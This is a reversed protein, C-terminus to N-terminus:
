RPSTQQILDGLNKVQKELKSLRSIFLMPLSVAGLGAIILFTYGCMEIFSM